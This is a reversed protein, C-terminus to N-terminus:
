DPLETDEQDVLRPIRAYVNLHAQCQLLLALDIPAWVKQCKEIMYPLARCRVMYAHLCQAKTTRYINEAVKKNEPWGAMCCNGFYFLDWDTPLSQIDIKWKDRFGPRFIVDDEFILAAEEEIAILHNWLMWHSLYIGVQRQGMLYGSGPADVEYPFSPNLGAMMNDWANWRVIQIREEKFRAEAKKWREKARTCNICYFNM